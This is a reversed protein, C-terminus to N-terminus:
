GDGSDIDCLSIDWSYGSEGLSVSWKTYTDGSDDEVYIDYTNPQLYATYTDGDYLTNDDSLHNDGWQSSDSPSIWIGTIDWSDLSNTLEIPYEGAHQLNVPSTATTDIDNMTVTWNFGEPGALVGRITYKDGDEDVVQLDYNGPRVMVEVENGPELIDTGPLHNTGWVNDTGRSIYVCYVNYDELGNTVTLPVKDFCGTSFILLAAALKYLFTKKNM